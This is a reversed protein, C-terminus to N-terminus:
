CKLMKLKAVGALYDQALSLAIGTICSKQEKAMQIINLTNFYIDKIEKETKERGYGALENSVQIIEGSNVVFGPVFLIHKETLRDCLKDDALIRNVSGTVIKCKLLDIHEGTIAHSFSSSCFVDCDTKFIEAPKVAAVGSYKDQIDKIKDYVLDTVVVEAGENILEEVIWRGVRGVGQVAVKVGKLSIEGTLDKIAAKIGWIIGRATSLSTDGSGGYMEPLGLVHATEKKMSLLDEASIGSEGTLLIRGNFKDVFAGLSRFYMESKVDGQDGLLIVCGGGVDHSMLAASYANFAAENIADSIAQELDQYDFVRCSCISPGLTVNNIAVIAKLSVSPENFFIVEKSATENMGAFIDM